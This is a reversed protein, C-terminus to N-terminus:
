FFNVLIGWCYGFFDLYYTHYYLSRIYRFEELLRLMCIRGFLLCDTLLGFYSHQLLWFSGYFSARIIISSRFYVLSDIITIEDSLRLFGYSLGSLILSKLFLQFAMVITQHYDFYFWVILHHHYCYNPNEQLFWKTPKNHDWILFIQCYHFIRTSHYFVSLIFHSWLIGFIRLHFGYISLHYIIQCLLGGIFFLFSRRKFM